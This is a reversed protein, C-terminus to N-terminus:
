DPPTVIISETGNVKTFETGAKKEGKKKKEGTSLPLFPFNTISRTKRERKGRGTRRILLDRFGSFNANVERRKGKGGKEEV